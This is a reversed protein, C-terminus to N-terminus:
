ELLIYKVEWNKDFISMTWSQYIRWIKITLHM